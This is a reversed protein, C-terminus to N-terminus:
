CHVASYCHKYLMRTLFNREALASNKRPLVYPHARTRLAYTHSAVPPLLHHLVHQKDTTLAKFLNDDAADFIAEIARTDSPCFNFKKARKIFADLREIDNVSAFGRWAPSCYTIISLVKSCFVKQILPDPMAHVRLTRLAHLSQSSAVIVSDIHEKVHLTSAISVGLIKISEVRQISPIPPPLSSPKTNQRRFVIELTKNCNLKLNNALAWQEIHKMEAETSGINIAPIVIYSDDAFKKMSNGPTLPELDSAAIAYAVPGIASGQVVSATIDLLGSVQDDFRTMHVRGTLFNAIWNYVNDPLPLSAMKSLLTAHRLSDFAKSFDLAVVRVYPQTELLDTVSQLLSIVAATTSGTPRFAFQDNFTLHPPPNTIAPYIYTSTIIREFTRSLVSTISIPRYDSHTQPHSVKSLPIICSTKWQTPVISTAISLNFLESLPKAFFPAGLRLFWSPLNDLGMATPKLHDLLYFVAQETIAQSQSNPAATAKLLPATYSNDTSVSAYHANLSAASVGLPVKPQTTRGSLLKVQDWLAKGGEKTDMKNLHTSNRRIILTRIKNAVADAEEAKGMRMLVNKKRLEQKIEPTMYFPDTSTVTILRLPYHRNLLTLAQSYFHDYTFQPNQDPDPTFFSPPLSSTDALFAAHHAPSRKRFETQTNVKAVATKMVGTYAVVASHDSKGVSRVVKINDYLSQSVLIQDLINAGRTPVKVLDIMGTREIIQAVDLNNTDGAIIIPCLPHTAMFNEITEVIYDMFSPTLYIPKPPHYIAGLLITQNPAEIKSWLLEYDRNDNPPNVPSIFYKTRAFIAVGGGRRKLRDRRDVTYGDIFVTSDDHKTKLHTETIVAIDVNYGMLDTSLHEIAHPKVISNANLLYLTPPLTVVCPNLLTSRHTSPPLQIQQLPVRVAPPRSQQQVPPLLRKTQVVNIARQKNRGGRCGRFKFLDNEILGFLHAERIQATYKNKRLEFLQNRTYTLVKSMFM